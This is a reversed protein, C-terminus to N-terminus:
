VDQFRAIIEGMEDTWEVMPWYLIMGKGMQDHCLTNFSSESGFIAGIQIGLMIINSLDDVELGLCYNGYMGRGSYSRLRGLDHDVVAEAFQEFFEAFESM